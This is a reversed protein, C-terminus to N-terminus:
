FYHLKGAVSCDLGCRFLRLRPGLQLHNSGHWVGFEIRRQPTPSLRIAASAGVPVCVRLSASGMCHPEM